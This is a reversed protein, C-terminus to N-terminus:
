LLIMQINRPQRIRHDGPLPSSTVSLSLYLLGDAELAFILLISFASVDPPMM